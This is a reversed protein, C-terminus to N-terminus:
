CENTFLALKIIRQSMLAKKFKLHKTHLKAVKGMGVSTVIIGIAAVSVTVLVATPNGMGVAGTNPLAPPTASKDDSSDQPLNAIIYM